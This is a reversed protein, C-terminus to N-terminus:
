SLRLEDDSLKDREAASEVERAALRKKMTKIFQGAHQGLPRAMTNKSECILSRYCNPKVVWNSRADRYHFDAGGDDEIKSVVKPLELKLIGSDAAPSFELLALSDGVQTHLRHSTLVGSLFLYSLMHTLIELQKTPLGEDDDVQPDLLPDFASGSDSDDMTIDSGPPSIEVAAPVVIKYSIDYMARPPIANAEGARKQATACLTKADSYAILAGLLEDNSSVDQEAIRILHHLIAPNQEYTHDQVLVHPNQLHKRTLKSGSM